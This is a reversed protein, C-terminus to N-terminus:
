AVTQVLKVSWFSDLAVLTLDATNTGDNAAVGLEIQAGASAQFLVTFAVIWRSNPPSAVNTQGGIIRTGAGVGGDWADVNIEMLAAAGGDNDFHIVGSAEFIGKVPCIYRSDAETYSGQPDLLEANMLLKQNTTDIAVTQNANPKAKAAWRGQQIIKLDAEAQTYTESKLYYPSVWSISGGTTVKLKIALPNGDNDIQYWVLIADDTPETISIQSQRQADTIVFPQYSGTDDDFYFWQNGNKAWPGVNTAPETAGVSFLAFVQQTTIQLREAIADALEQPTGVFGVPLRALTITLPLAVEDAM